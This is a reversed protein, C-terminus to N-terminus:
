IMSFAPQSTPHKHRYQRYKRLASMVPESILNKITKVLGSGEGRFNEHMYWNIAERFVSSPPAMHEPHAHQQAYEIVLTEIYKEREKRENKTLQGRRVAQAVTDATQLIYILAVDDGCFQMSDGGIDWYLLALPTKIVINYLTYINLM